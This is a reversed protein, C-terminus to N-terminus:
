ETIMQYIERTLKADYTADHLLEDEVELGMFEAVTALKFNKMKHREWILHQSALVLVDLTDAWFWSGYYSDGNRLFFARLFRDDFFRNNYGVLHFKDCKDFRNVYKSLLRILDKYIQREEVYTEIEEATVGGVDLAEQTILAGEFPKINWNITDRVKGNIEFVMVLQHTACKDPDLGTTELDFFIKKM